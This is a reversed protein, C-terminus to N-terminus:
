KCEEGRGGQQSPLFGGLWATVRELSGATTWANVDRETGEGPAKHVPCTCGREGLWLAAVHMPLPAQRGSVQFVSTERKHRKLDQTFGSFVTISIPSLPSAFSRILTQFIGLLFCQWCLSQWTPAPISKPILICTDPHSVCKEPLVHPVPRKGACM